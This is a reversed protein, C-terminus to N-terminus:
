GFWIHFAWMRFEVTLDQHRRDRGDRRSVRTIRQLVRMCRARFVVLEQPAHGHRSEDGVDLLFRSLFVPLCLESVAIDDPVVQQCGPHVSDAHLKSDADDLIIGEAVHTVHKGM